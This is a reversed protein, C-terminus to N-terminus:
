HGREFRIAREYHKFLKERRKFEPSHVVRRGAAMEICGTERAQERYLQAHLMEHYVIFELYYRPVAARDLVPNIRITDNELTYSGLTRHRVRASKTRRGWTIRCDLSSSFYSENVSGYLDSLDYFRGRTYLRTEREPAQPMLSRNDRVFEWFLPTQERRGSIYEAIETIVEEGAALFIRHLRVRIPASRENVSLLSTSNNTLTLSVPRGIARSLYERLTDANQGFPLFMQYCDVTNRQAM